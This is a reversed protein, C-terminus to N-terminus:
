HASGTSRQREPNFVVKRVVRRTLDDAVSASRVATEAAPAAAAPLPATTSANAAGAAPVGVEAGDVAPLTTANAPAGAAPQQQQAGSANPLAPHEVAV